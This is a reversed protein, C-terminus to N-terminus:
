VSEGVISHTHNTQKSAPNLNSDQLLSPLRPCTHRYIVLMSAFPAPSASDNFHLRGKIFRVEAIGYVFRHFWRTDTRAPLLLVVSAGLQWEQYAKEVWAAIARGYPPNCWCPHPAWPQLLGNQQHTFYTPCKANSPSACVDLDFHFEQHLRDFLDRPTTWEDRQSHHLFETM